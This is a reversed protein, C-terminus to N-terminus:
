GGSSCKLFIMWRWREHGDTSVQRTIFEDASVKEVEALYGDAAPNCYYCINVDWRHAADVFEKLVDGKGDMWSSAAVSYSRKSATVRPHHM